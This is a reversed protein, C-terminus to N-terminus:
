LIRDQAEDEPFAHITLVRRGQRVTAMAQEPSMRYVDFLIEMAQEAAVTRVATDVDATEVISYSIRSPDDAPLVKGTDDALVNREVYFRM